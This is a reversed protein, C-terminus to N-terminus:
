PLALCPGARETNCIRGVVQPAIGEPLSNRLGELVLKKLRVPQNGTDVIMEPTLFDYGDQNGIRPDVLFDNTVM